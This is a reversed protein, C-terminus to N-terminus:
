LSVEELEGWSHGISVDVTFPLNWGLEKKAQCEMVEKMMKATDDAANAPVDAVISDHVTAVTPVAGLDLEILSSITVWAAINQPLFNVAERHVDGRNENTILHFRRRHGFPSKIVGEREAQEQVSKVWKKLQPFEAWWSDVYAQAEEKPMHYMQAFAEASQGYTVGFNINKSKVYQEKTYDAGYFAAARERHLSRSSDRYIGLLREDGSLVACTRLEAQSYDATIIVNGPSPLFLTRIGPIGERGERTVNQLNPSRSSLRGTVTGGINFECYIKGDRNAREILGEIYTGRQKEISSFRKHVTALQVIRDKYQPKSRFRGAIIETRVEAGTSSELKKKGSDKLDHKLGMVDYYVAHMQPVSRPNILSQGSIERIERQLGWLAPLVERENLNAAAEVNYHFGREEMNRIANVSTLLRKRYLDELGEEALMPMFRDYLMKTGAADRGNYEYLLPLDSDKIFGTRKFTKVVEPEYNPWDFNDMLLFELSHVGPREDLAISALFTDEDVRGSIGERRLVKTDAKGNHWIFRTQTRNYFEALIKQVRRDSLANRGFVVSKGGSQAFGACYIATDNWELDSALYDYSTNCWRALIARAQDASDIVEVEPFVPASIPDFARRFDRVMDPFSDSDRLVAAPNNTVVVRQTVGASSVRTHDYGRGASVSKVTTLAKTAEVGGALILDVNALEAELRPRCREIAEKPPDDSECLVVNTTLIDDRKAKYRNLLYDLVKGSPGSFPKGHRVDHRGPSRSVFAVRAYEPGTTPAFRKERLPCDGCQALPHKTEQSTLM